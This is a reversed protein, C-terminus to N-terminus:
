RALPQSQCWSNSVLGPVHTSDASLHPEVARHRPGIPDSRHAVRKLVATRVISTHEDGRIAPRSKAEPSESDDVQIGARVLRHRVFIAGNVDHEVTLNVIEPFKALLELGPTVRESRSGVGLHDNM